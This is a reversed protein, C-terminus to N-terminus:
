MVQAGADLVNKVHDLANMSCVSVNQARLCMRTYCYRPLKGCVQKNISVREGIIM